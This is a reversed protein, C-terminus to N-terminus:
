RELYAITDDHGGINVEGIFTQPITQYGREILVVSRDIEQDIDVFEFEIGKVNLYDKLKKCFKCWQAGYVTLM